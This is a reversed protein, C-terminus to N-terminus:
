CISIFYIFYQSIFKMHSGSVHFNHLPLKGWSFFHLPLGKDRLNHCWFILWLLLLFRCCKIWKILFRCYLIFRCLFKMETEWINNYCVVVDLTFIILTFRVKHRKRIFVVDTVFFSLFLSFRCSTTRKQQFVVLFKHFFVYVFLMSNMCLM